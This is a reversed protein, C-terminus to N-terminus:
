DKKTIGQGTVDKLEAKVAEFTAKDSPALNPGGVTINALVYYTEGPDVELTLSDKELSHATYQHKGPTAQITLYTGNRLRGLEVEGERVKIGEVAGVFRKARFFVVTGTNDDAKAAPVSTQQALAIGGLITALALLATVLKRKM